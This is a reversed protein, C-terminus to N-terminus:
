EPTHLVAEVNNGDPDIVFAGYYNPHYRPWLGPEGYDKAGAAIAAEHFARVAARDPATFAIHMPAKGAGHGEGWYGPTREGIWFSPKGNAGFGGGGPFDMVLGYGLPALVKLYFEKSREYSQVTVVIHDIM